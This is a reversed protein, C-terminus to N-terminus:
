IFPLGTLTVPWAADGHHVLLGSAAGPVEASVLALGINRRLRPSHVAESLLGVAEGDRTIPLPHQNPAIEPGELVVGCRRRRPGDRKIRELAARGVFDIPRDLDVLKGLGMEFPNAPCVQRRADAGYSILGSEIREVDNPAGPGIGHPQGAERVLAWLDCGRTRDRLYLEFGGQKSWGSRAVIVPIGEVATERFWFYRLERVWDGFLDAVVAEARPGQVAMPAADPEVVEVDLGLALAFAGAWLGIDADAISLWYREEDLKLLVPDNILFGQADCIAVYCGQGVRMASIDRTSLLQALRPADRGSIEVQRQAAVDWMAVGNILRDYEAAPDGFHGPIYM